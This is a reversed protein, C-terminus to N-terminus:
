LPGAHTLELGAAFLLAFAHVLPAISLCSLVLATSSSPDAALFLASLNMCTLDHATPGDVAASPPVRAPPAHHHLCACHHTGPSAARLSFDVEINLTRAMQWYDSQMMGNYLFYLQVPM